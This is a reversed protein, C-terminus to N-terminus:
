KEVTEHYVVDNPEIRSYLGFLTSYLRIYRNQDAQRVNQSTSTGDDDSTSGRCRTLTTFGTALSLHCTNEKLM